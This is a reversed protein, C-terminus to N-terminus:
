RAAHIESRLALAASMNRQVAWRWIPKLLELAVLVSLGALPPVALHVPELAAFGFIDRATPWFLTVALLAAVIALVVALARNPRTIATFVSSSRSRDVLILAVIAFILAAFTMGRVQDTSMGYGPALAFITATVALVLSGQVLSWLVTPGSFLPAAPPRPPRAHHGRGRDRSRLGPHLGPRDGNGPLRHAHAWCSRCARLHAAAAGAGRHARPDRHHLGDIQASQRIRRGLRVAAVISGFDDDLLVMSSAERAVDTGRGGMAIGIHAAKLSPADNVGDGTMAVVAGNAKLAAVIRLKQEPMIRAFVTTSRVQAALTADDMASADPGTVINEADLGAQRAIAAATAPYDGTIMVVRIGATRCEAVAEV